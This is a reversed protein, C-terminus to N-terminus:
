HIGYLIRQGDGTWPLSRRWLGFTVIAQMTLTFLIEVRITGVPAAILEVPLRPEM